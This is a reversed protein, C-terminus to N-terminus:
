QAAATGAVVPKPKRPRKYAPSRKKVKLPSIKKVSMRPVNPTKRNPSPPSPYVMKVKGTTMNEVEYPARKFRRPYHIRLWAGMKKAVDVQTPFLGKNNRTMATNLLQNKYKEVNTKLIKKLNESVVIKNFFKKKIEEFHRKDKLNKLFKVTVKNVNAQKPKGRAGKPLQRILKILNTTNTNKVFRNYKEGFANKIVKNYLLEDELNQAFSGASSSASSSVSTKAPTPAKDLTALLLDYKNSNSFGKWEEYNKNMVKKGIANKEAATMVAWQKTRDGRVVRGNALLLHPVGELTFQPSSSGLKNKILEIVQRTKLKESAQAIGLNRAIKVLQDMTYKSALVGNIRNQGGVKNMRHGAMFMAEPTATIGFQNKVTKPINKGARQYAEIVGKRAPAVHKPLKYFQPLGGKGPKVYFGAKVASFSAPVNKKEAKPKLQAGELNFINKVYAPINIGANAYARLVKTRIPAKNAPVPYYRLNGAPDPRVYFGNKRASLSPAANYRERGKQKKNVKERKPSTLPQIALRSNITSNKIQLPIKYKEFIETFIKPAKTLIDKDAGQFIVLGKRYILFVIKPDRWTLFAAAHLEPEYRWNEIQNVPNVYRSLLPGLIDLNIVFNIFFQGDKKVLEVPSSKIGPIYNDMIALIENLPRTTAIQVTGTKFVTVTARDMKFIWRIVSDINKSPSIIPSNKGKIFRVIPRQGIKQVGSIETVNGEIIGIISISKTYKTKYLASILEGDTYSITQRQNDLTNYVRQKDFM